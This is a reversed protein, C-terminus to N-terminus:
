HELAMLALLPKWGSCWGVAAILAAADETTSTGRREWRFGDSYISIHKHLYSIMERQREFDIPKGSSADELLHIRCRPWDKTGNCIGCIMKEWFGKTKLAFHKLHAPDKGRVLREEPISSHVHQWGMDCILCNRKERLGALGRLHKMPGWLNMQKIALSLIDEYLLAPGMLFSRRFSAEVMLALWAHRQCFGWADHLRLRVDVNMISGQMYCWLYHIEGSSPQLTSKNPM